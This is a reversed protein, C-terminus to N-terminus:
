MPKVDVPMSATLMETYLSSLSPGIVTNDPISATEGDSELITTTARM